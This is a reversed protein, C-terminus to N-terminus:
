LYDESEKEPTPLVVQSYAHAKWLNWGLIHLPFMERGHFLTELQQVSLRPLEEFTATQFVSAVRDYRYLTQYRKCYCFEINKM